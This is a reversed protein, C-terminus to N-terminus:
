RLLIHVLVYPLFKLSARIPFLSHSCASQLKECRETFILSKISHSRWPFTVLQIRLQCLTLSLLQGIFSFHCACVHYFFLSRSCGFSWFVLLFVLLTCSYLVRSVCALPNLCIMSMLLWRRHKSWVAPCISHMGRQGNTLLSLYILTIIICVVLTFFHTM